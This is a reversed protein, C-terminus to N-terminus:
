FYVNVVIFFDFLVIFFFMDCNKELVMQSFLYLYHFNYKADVHLDILLYM